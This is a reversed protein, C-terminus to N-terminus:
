QLFEQVAAIFAPQGTMGHGVNPIVVTKAAPLCKQQLPVLQQKFRPVTNEGTALLVPMKLAGLDACNGLKPVPAKAGAILTWANDRHVAQVIPPYRSFTGKGYLTDVGFEMAAEAGKTKLLNEAADAFKKRGELYAETPPPLLGDTTGEALVLKHVLEPHARATEFAVTGGYSHAVISVPPSLKKALAALDQAHQLTSYEGSGDWPEPYYHRLSVAVVRYKGSLAPMLTSWCRYDCMAGHVLIVTPGSGKEVYAMPYGNVEATKVGEPLKWAVPQTTQCGTAIALIAGVLGLRLGTSSHTRTGKLTSRM